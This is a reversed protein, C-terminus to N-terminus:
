SKLSITSVIDLDSPFKESADGAGPFVLGTIGLMHRHHLGNRWRFLWTWRRLFGVDLRQRQRQRRDCRSIVDRVWFERSDVDFSRLVSPRRRGVDSTTAATRFISPLPQDRGRRSVVGGVLGPVAHYADSPTVVRFLWDDDDYLETQVDTTTPTSNLQGPQRIGDRGGWEVVNWWVAIARFQASLPRSGNPKAERM